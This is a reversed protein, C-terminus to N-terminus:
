LDEGELQEHQGFHPVMTHWSNAPATMEKFKKGDNEFWSPDVFRFMQQSVGFDISEGSVHTILKADLMAKGMKVAEDLTSAILSQKLWM